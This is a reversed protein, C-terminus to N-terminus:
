SLSKLEKPTLDRWQGPALDEPLQLNDIAIRTLSIINLGAQACMNRIQRNRGEQLVFRLWTHGGQKRLLAVNVPRITYGDIEMPSRLRELTAKNCPGAVEVRYTKRHGYRPHTLRAILAGDNSLLLLGDSNRDLRGVPVLREPLGSVLDCVTRGQGDDASCLLGPPKNMMITRRRPLAAKVPQGDCLVQSIAPDVRAGPERTVIGDVRVRGARIMDAAHRRSAIGAQALVLQLRPPQTAPPNSAGRGNSYLSKKDTPVAASSRGAPHRKGTPRANDKM